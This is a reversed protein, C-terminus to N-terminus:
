GKITFSTECLVQGGKVNKAQLKGSFTSGVCFNEMTVYKHCSKPMGACKINFKRIGPIIGERKVYRQKHYKKGAYAGKLLRPKVHFLEIYSKARIFKAAQFRTEVKWAGLEYEDLKIGKVENGILHLSDTDIYCLNKYNAQGARIVCDRAYATVFCAVPVYVTEKEESPMTKYKVEGDALYPIKSGVESRTGFKGYLNNLMLKSIQKLGANGTRAAVEKQKYWFDIYFAFIGKAEMFKWGDLYELDFVHYHAFFLKLDVCTLSLVIPEDTGDAQESTKLYETELFFSHKLQITPLYGERLRFRCSIRCVYLPFRGNDEYKGQFYKPEGIPYPKDKMEAPYMSNRDVVMGKGVINGRCWDNVYCYGGKYSKRIQKDVEPALVPFLHRFKDGIELKYWNLANAGVTLKTLGEDLLRKVGIKLLHVDHYVYDWEQETPQYGIERFKKYDIKTKREEVGFAKSFAEIPIPIIKLSDKFTVFGKGVKVAISYFKGDDSIVTKFQKGELKVRKGNPIYVHEFGNELLWWLIFTGDFKLNHFYIQSGSKSIAWEMFEDLSLGKQYEETDINMSGWAWVRCDEPDTTTEFDAVYIM